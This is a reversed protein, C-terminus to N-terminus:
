SRTDGRKLGIGTYMREQVGDRRPQSIHIRPVAAHLNRGFSQKDGTPSGNGDCWRRWAKFLDDVFVTQTPGLACVDDIFALTPSSLEVLDILMQNSQAPQEFHGRERFRELGDLGWLLIGPLEGALTAGLSPDEEGLYSHEMPLILFRNALAGSSDGFRPLENSLIVIRTPLPGTVASKYKRDITLPDEGSISLLREVVSQAHQGSVRADPVIAVPKDLLPQLGFNTALSALTPGAVNHEGVLGRIVRGITGKGSRSPGLLFLIKQQSTDSVL